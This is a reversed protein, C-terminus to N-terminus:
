PTPSTTPLRDMTYRMTTGTSLDQDVVAMTKGDDAVTLKTVAMAKGGRSRTEEISKEALRKLSISTKGPDGTRPVPTGDFPADYAMGNYHMQLRGSTMTYEVTTSLDSAVPVKDLRWSGALSHSGASGTTVRASEQSFASAKAGSLDQYAETLRQGDTSVVMTDEMIPKGGLKFTQVVTHADVIRVALTDYYSHGGVKQDTGDAKVSDPPSCTACRFVGDKLEYSEPRGSVQLTSTRMKWAGDFPGAAFAGMPLFGVAISCAAALTSRKM